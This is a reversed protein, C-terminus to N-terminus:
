PSVESALGVLRKYNSIMLKRGCKWASSINAYSISCLACGLASAVASGSCLGVPWSPRDFLCFDETAQESKQVLKEYMRWKPNPATSTKAYPM